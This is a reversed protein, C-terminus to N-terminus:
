IIYEPVLEEFIAFNEAKERQAIYAELEERTVFRGKIRPRKDSSKHNIPKRKASHKQVRKTVITSPRKINASCLAEVTAATVKVANVTGQGFTSSPITANESQERYSDRHFAEAKRLSLSETRAAANPIYLSAAMVKGRAMSFIPSNGAVHHWAAAVGQPDLNLNLRGSPLPPLTSAVSDFDSKQLQEHTYTLDTECQSADEFLLPADFDLGLDFDTNLATSVDSRSSDLSLGSASCTQLLM